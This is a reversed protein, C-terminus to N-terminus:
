EIIVKIISHDNFFYNRASSYIWDEENEVYGKMVQNEHIYNLKQQFFDETEVLKPWNNGRWIQYQHTKPNKLLPLIYKRNDYNLLKIIEKATFSKYSNIFRIMDHCEAILHMHNTM